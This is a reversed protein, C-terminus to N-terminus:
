KNMPIIITILDSACLRLSFSVSAFTAVSSMFTVARRRVAGLREELGATSHTGLFIYPRVRPAPIPLWIKCGNSKIEATIM